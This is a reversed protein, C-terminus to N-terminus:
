RLHATTRKGEPKPLLFVDSRSIPHGFQILLLYGSNAVFNSLDKQRKSDIDQTKKGGNALTKRTEMEIEFAYCHVSIATM